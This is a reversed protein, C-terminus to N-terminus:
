GKMAEDLTQTTWVDQLKVVTFHQTRRSDVCLEEAMRKAKEFDEFFGFLSKTTNNMIEYHHNNIM